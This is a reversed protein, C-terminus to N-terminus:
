VSSGILSLLKKRQSDTLAYIFHRRWESSYWTDRAIEIRNGNRDTAYKGKEDLRFSIAAADEDLQKELTERIVPFGCEADSFNSSLLMRVFQWAANQEAESCASSVGVSEDFCFRSRSEEETPWGVFSAGNEFFADYWKLDDISAIHAQLFMLHGSYIRKEMSSSDAAYDFYSYAAPQLNSYNMLKTYLETNFQDGKGLERSNVALLDELLRGSTYYPEYLSSGAPMEAYLRRLMSMNLLTQGEAVSYDCAMTEIRFTGSLRKLTNHEDSLADWVTPFFDERSYGVDSRLLKELDALGDEAALQRYTEEDMIMIDQVRDASIPEGLNRYDVADLFVETNERNFTLIAKLLHDSIWSFGVSILLRGTRIECAAAILYREEATQSDDNWSHLLFHFSGDTGAYFAGVSSPEAGLTLLSVKKGSMGSKLDYYIVESNRLCYLIEETEGACFSHAGVPVQQPVTVTRDTIDIVSIWRDEKDALLVALNGDRTGCLELIQFPTSVSFQKRGDLGFFLVENGQPAAMMCDGLLIANSCDLGIGAMTEVENSSLEVGNEKLLRVYYRDRTQTGRDTIWSEYSAELVVIRGDECIRFARPRSESFYKELKETNEPAPLPRYRRVKHRKGSKTVTFLASEYVDYRGDNVFDPEVRREEPIEERVKRNIYALFGDEYGQQYLVAENEEAVTVSSVTYNQLWTEETQEEVIAEEATNQEQDSNARGCGALLIVSLVAALCRVPRRRQGM